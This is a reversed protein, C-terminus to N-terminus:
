RDTEDTEVSFQSNGDGVGAGVWSRELKREKRIQLERGGYRSVRIGNAETYKHM